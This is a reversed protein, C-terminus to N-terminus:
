KLSCEHTKSVRASHVALVWAPAQPYTEGEMWTFEGRKTRTSIDWLELVENQPGHVTTSIAAISASGDVFCWQWPAIAPQFTHRKGASYVEVLIPIPDHNANEEARVYRAQAPAFGIALTLAAGLLASNSRM